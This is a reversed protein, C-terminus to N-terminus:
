LHLSNITEKETQLHVEHKRNRHFIMCKDGLLGESSRPSVRGRGATMIRM